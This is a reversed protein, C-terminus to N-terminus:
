LPGFPPMALGAAVALLAAQRDGAALTLSRVECGAIRETDSSPFRPAEAADVLRVHLDIVARPEFVIELPGLGRLEALGAITEPSECVLRGHHGVVFLQDDGVLRGVRGCAHAHAILALALGTKGSGSEGTILVGRDGLVVATAHLNDPM